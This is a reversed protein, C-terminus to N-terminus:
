NKIIGFLGKSFGKDMNPFVFRYMGEELEISATWFGVGFPVYLADDIIIKFSKKDETTVFMAM